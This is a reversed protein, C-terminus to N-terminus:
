QRQHFRNRLFTICRDLQEVPQFGFATDLLRDRNEELFDALVGSTLGDPDDEWWRSLLADAEPWNRYVACDHIQPDSDRFPYDFGDEVCIFESM